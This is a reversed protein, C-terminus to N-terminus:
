RKSYPPRGDDEWATQFILTWREGAELRTFGHPQTGGDFRWVRGGLWSRARGEVSFVGGQSARRLELLWILNHSPGDVHMDLVCPPQYRQLMASYSRRKTVWGMVLHTRTSHHEGRVRGWGIYVPWFGDNRADYRFTQRSLKKRKARRWSGLEHRLHTLSV